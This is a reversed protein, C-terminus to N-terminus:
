QVWRYDPIRDRKIRRIEDRNFIKIFDKGTNVGEENVVRIHGHYASIYQGKSHPVTGELRFEFCGTPISKLYAIRNKVNLYISPRLYSLSIGIIAM